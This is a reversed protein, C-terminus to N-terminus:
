EIGAACISLQKPTATVAENEAGLEIPNQYNQVDACIQRNFPLGIVRIQLDRAAQKNTDVSTM